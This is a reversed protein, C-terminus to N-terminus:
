ANIIESAAVQGSIISPPLGPGPTTLQGAYFLNTLKKSKIKPKLFATQFLTNALGYANGKFSNYVNKFDKVSFFKKFLIENKISEGTYKEIRKITMNFYKELIGDQEKLDPALPILIFLNEKGKPAVSRDTKSPACVYFLPDNPWQPEKYIEKAHKEFDADFFLNHHELGEIKKNVGVFMLLSSPAMARKNWYSHSYSSFKQKLLNQDVHHYDANSIVFDCEYQAVETKVTKISKQMYEFGTVASNFIFKVGQDKAIKYFAEAIKYMGGKPYWTGLKIDAYNMLSYLAPTDKPTAGLFLVPFELIQRISNDKTINKIEKSISQLLQLKFLNKIVKLQAFDLISHGPKWVFENMGVEYKFKADSLFQDLKQGTGKEIKEFLQKLANYDAPLDLSQEFPFVVKYSPDLRKLDYFDSATFGFKNYFNEFVEPMWYWSPGMEFRFGEHDFYNIRGGAKDNKEIVTVDFNAKALEAAASLGAIGSGIIIVKKM